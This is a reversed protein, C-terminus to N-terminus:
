FMQCDYWVSHRACSLMICVCSFLDPHWKNKWTSFPELLKHCSVFWDAFRGVTKSGTESVTHMLQKYFFHELLRQLIFMMRFINLLIASMRVLWVSAEPHLKVGTECLVPCLILSETVWHLCLVVYLRPKVNDPAAEGWESGSISTHHQDFSCRYFYSSICILFGDIMRPCCIIFFIQKIHKILEILLKKKLKISIHWIIKCKQQSSLM